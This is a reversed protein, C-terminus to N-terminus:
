GEPESLACRPTSGPLGLVAFQGSAFEPLPWGDPVVRLIILWPSIENRLAVIANLKPQPM